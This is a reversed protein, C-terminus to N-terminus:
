FNRNPMCIRSVCIRFFNISGHQWARDLARFGGFPGRECKRVVKVNKRM